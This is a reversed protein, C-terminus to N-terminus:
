EETIEIEAKQTSPNVNVTFKHSRIFAKRSKAEQTLPKKVSLDKKTIFPRDSICAYNMSVLGGKKGWNYCGAFDKYLIKATGM